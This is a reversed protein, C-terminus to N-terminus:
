FLFVTVLYFLTSNRFFKKDCFWSQWRIKLEFFSCYFWIWVVAWISEFLHSCKQIWVHLLVWSSANIICLELISVLCNWCGCSFMCNQANYPDECQLAGRCVFQNGNYNTKPNFVEQDFELKENCFQYMIVYVPLPFLSFWWSLLMAKIFWWIRRASMLLFTYCNYSSSVNKLKPSFPNLM